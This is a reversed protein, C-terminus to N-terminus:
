IDPIILLAPVDDPDIPIVWRSTVAAPSDPPPPPPPAPPEMCATAEPINASPSLTTSRDSPVTCFAPWGVPGSAKKSVGISSSLSVELVVDLFVVIIEHSGFSLLM